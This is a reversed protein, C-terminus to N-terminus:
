MLYYRPILYQFLAVLSYAIMGFSLFVYFWHYYKKPIFQQLGLIFLIMIASLISFYYRGQAPFTIMGYNVMRGHYVIM